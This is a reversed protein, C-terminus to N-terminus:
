TVIKQINKKEPGRGPFRGTALVSSKRNPETMSRLYVYIIPVGWFLFLFMELLFILGQFGLNKETKGQHRKTKRQKKRQNGDM